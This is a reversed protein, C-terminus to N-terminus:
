NLTTNMQVKTKSFSLNNPTLQLVLIYVHLMLPFFVSSPQSSVSSQVLFVKPLSSLLSPTDSNFMMLLSSALGETFSMQRHSVRAKLQITAFWLVCRLCTSSLLLRLCTVFHPCLLSSDYTQMKSVAYCLTSNQPITTTQNSLATFSRFM